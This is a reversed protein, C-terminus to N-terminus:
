QPILVITIGDGISFTPFSTNPSVGISFTIFAFYILLAFFLLALASILSTMRRIRKVQDARKHEQQESEDTQSYKEHSLPRRDHYKM